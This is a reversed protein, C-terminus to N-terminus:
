LAVSGAAIGVSPRAARGAGVLACPRRRATGAHIPERPDRANQQLASEIAGYPNGDGPISIALETLGARVRNEREARLQEQRQADRLAAAASAAEGEVLQVHRAIQTLDPMTDSPGETNAIGRLLSNLRERTAEVDYQQQCVPCYEGLHRSAIEALVRLEQQQARAQTQRMRIEAASQEAESLASKATALALATQDDRQQLAELDTDTATLEQLATALQRLRDGRRERSLRITNLKVMAADIASHSQSSEARPMGVESVGLREAETWWNAWAEHSFITTSGGDISEQLQGELRSLREELDTMEARRQNTVGSWAKRSGELAVQLENARGAGILETIANFREQDSDATLFGTLVDQQLYVGRELAARLAARPENAALGEPWIRSILQHEAEEGHFVDDGDKLLLGGKQGDHLRTLVITRGDDSAVTLEVRAEGSFSYLSVVSEPNELRSVRGTIAWYIADFFSTKGQGHSWCRARHGWRPRITRQWQVSSIRQNGLIKGEHDNDEAKYSLTFSPM